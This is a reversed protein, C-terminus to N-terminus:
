YEEEPDWDADEDGSNNEVDEDEESENKKKKNDKDSEFGPFLRGKAGCAKCKYMPIPNDEESTIEIKPSSCKPCTM